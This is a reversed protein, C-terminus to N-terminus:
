HGRSGRGGGASDGSTYDYGADVYMGFISYATFYGEQYRRPTNPFVLVPIRDPVNGDHDLPLDSNEVERTFDGETWRRMNPRGGRKRGPERTYLSAASQCRLKELGRRSKIYEELHRTDMGARSLRYYARHVNDPDSAYRWCVSHVAKM